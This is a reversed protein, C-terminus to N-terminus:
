VGITTIQLTTGSTAGASGDANFVKITLSTASLATCVAHVAAGDSRFPTINVVPTRIFDGATIDVVTPTADYATSVTYTIQERKITYNFRDLTFDAQTPNSNDVVFYLQM